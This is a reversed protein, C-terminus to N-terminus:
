ICYYETLFYTRDWDIIKLESEKEPHIDFEDLVMIEKDKLNYLPWEHAKGDPSIEASLSPNGTKAFQVWMKRMTKSFTEDFQRGTVLNEEPHNFVTSLEVAHGSKMKPVSSEVTFYYMYTKGDAKTQNESMRFLPAIFYMQDFFRLVPENSDGKIDKCFSEILGKEKDTLKALIMNFRKIFPEAGGDSFMFYNMEDKTCGQMFDIDKAAGKAYAEYPDLPLYKGDREPFVRLTLIDAEDIFKRVDLKQLDAVTKCGLKEMLENTCAIAEETSRTFAPSGSQAIVRKFYKHSGEILPLLSVSGGGASQGFITVNDPDGGFAAINEHVWKLAMMQDMIGLNQADPYDKGDPLHSLHFFGFVSLRYDISVLIVDPNEKVFNTGEERPEVTGGIEFAGGHIWVMVPKKKGGDDAKWVNLYLCDEGQVYLSAIQWIDEVQCPSKGNYYAEYVGDDPVVDVPAKWRLEGVPQKGVFPIGKYAIVGDTKRGVFTGNICKVALSKDYNGDTIKKNEGYLARLKERAESLTSDAAEVSSKYAAIRKAVNDKINNYYFTYDCDHRGDPGFFETAIKASEEPMPEVKANTVVVGRALNIQADAGIDGIELEGTKENLVLSGLNESAPAYTEDLKWNLPNISIAGPLLVATKVNVEVNEKGETNWSVIVGTDTEGTAFKMHPNAELDDKTISYGIVYAAIMRKYYDPHEKFYKKLVLRTIASGQSHGAITFPRGNNCNEFYYDLAATIDSYPMGSIAADVNGTEQWSKKMVVMGAQRYYPMFVNTSDEYVTAHALYEEEFGKLMEANDLTAYDSAGEEFSGMIYVTSNIYFTDVDKTITAPIKCWSAKQSYDPAKGASEETAYATFSFVMVVIIAFTLIKKNM